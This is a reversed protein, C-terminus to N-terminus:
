SITSPPLRAVGFTVTPISSPGLSPPAHLIDTFKSATPLGQLLLQTPLLLLLLELLLSLPLRPRNRNSLLPLPWTRRLLLLPLLRTWTRLPLSSLVTLLLWPFVRLRYLLSLPLLFTLLATLLLLLSGSAILPDRPPVLLLPPLPSVHRRPLSTPLSLPAPTPPCSRPTRLHGTNLVVLLLLVHLLSSM